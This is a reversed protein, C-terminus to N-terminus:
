IIENPGLPRSLDLIRGFENKKILERNPSSETSIRVLESIIKSGYNIGTVKPKPRQRQGFGGGFGFSFSPKESPPAYGTSVQYNHMLALHRVDNPDAPPPPGSNNQKKAYFVANQDM